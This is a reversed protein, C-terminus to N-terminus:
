VAKHLQRSRINKNKASVALSLGFAALVKHLSQIEPHGNRSLMKYLNSRSMKIKRSLRVMGGRAEAVNRLAVLFMKPDKTELVANLYGVAEEPDKLAEILDEQYHKM